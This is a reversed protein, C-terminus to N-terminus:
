LYYYYLFDELKVYLLYFLLFIAGTILLWYKNMEWGKVLGVLIEDIKREAAHAIRTFPYM